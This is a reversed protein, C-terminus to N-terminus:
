GVSVTAGVSGEVQAALSRARAFLLRLANDGDKELYDLDLLLRLPGEVKGGAPIRTDGAPYPQTDEKWAVQDIRWWPKGTAARVYVRYVSRPHGVGLVGIVPSELTLSSLLRELQRAYKQKLYRNPSCIRM